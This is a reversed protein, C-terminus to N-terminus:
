SGSRRVLRRMRRGVGHAVRRVGSRLGSERPVAADRTAPASGGDVRARLRSNRRQLSAVQSRLRQNEEIVTEGHGSGPGIVGPRAQLACTVAAAVASAALGSDIRGSEPDVDPLGEGTPDWRLGEPDGLLHVGSATIAKRRRENLEHVREVAWDPMTIAGDRPSREEARVARGVARKVQDEYLWDPWSAQEAARDVQQLFLAENLSYSQNSRTAVPRILGETLGLLREFTRPLLDRNHEDAVVLWVREPSTVAVWRAILAEFDAVSWFHEHFDGDSEDSLVIRLWEDYSPLDARWKIREQWQSPLLRDLRRVTAVVHVREGGLDRVIRAATDDDAGALRENSVCVRVDGASTVEEVLRQWHEMDPQPRHTGRDVLAMGARRPRTGRGAYHVGEASMEDRVAAMAVQLATTGTKPPGIHVLRAGPPLMAPDAM